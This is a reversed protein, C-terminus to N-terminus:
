FELESRTLNHTEYSKRATTGALATIQDPVALRLLQDRIRQPLVGAWRALPGAYAPLSVEFRPRRLVRVVAQAVEDPTLLRAAGTATGTALETDVVGPLIVSLEVGSGRLESRVGTLYGLVGHKTAAYTAEGPPSLRAAASAITVIHGHGRERMAPAVLKVGRITGHLNVDLQRHAAAEPEQDFPGVWMVGANNVLVDIPGWRDRVAQLFGSFSSTDTVDCDFAAVAGDLEGATVQARQPDRDGIAVHAGHEALRAVVARGIGRAGGTVAVVRGALTTSM